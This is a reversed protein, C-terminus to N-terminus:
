GPLAIYSFQRGDNKVQAHMARRYSHFLGSQAYTDCALDDVQGVGAVTLQEAVFGPLDFHWHDKAGPVFFPSAANGFRDRFAADVEYNAQAICPGIAAIIASRRAGSQEMASVTNEVVGGVAGRWGAHAAGIVGADIDALLVPACDATAIALPLGRQTTVMADAAPAAGSQWPGRVVIVDASHVQRLTVFPAAVLGTFDALGARTSFGHPVAALLASHLAGM